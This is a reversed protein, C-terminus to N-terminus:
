GDLLARRLGDYRGPATVGHWRAAAFVLNPQQKVPPLDEIWALVERDEAVALAWARFCPSDDAYRAFDAYQRAVDTFLEM